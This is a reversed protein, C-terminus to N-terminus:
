FAWVSARFKTKLLFSIKAYLWFFIMFSMKDSLKSYTKM